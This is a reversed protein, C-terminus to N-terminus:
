ECKGFLICRSQCLITGSWQVLNVVRAHPRDCVLAYLLEPPRRDTLVGVLSVELIREQTTGRRCQYGRSLFRPLHSERLLRTRNFHRSEM